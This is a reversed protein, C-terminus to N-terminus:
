FHSLKQFLLSTPVEQARAAQLWGKITATVDIETCGLFPFSLKATLISAFRYRFNGFFHNLFIFHFCSNASCRTNSSRM